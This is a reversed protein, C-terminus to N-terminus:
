IHILSLHQPIQAPAADTIRYQIVTDFLSREILGVSFAVLVAHKESLVSRAVRLVGTHAAAAPIKAPIHRAALLPKAKADRGAVRIGYPHLHVLGRNVRERACRQPQQRAPIPARHMVERQAPQVVVRQLLKQDAMRLHFRELKAKVRVLRPPDKGLLESSDILFLAKRYFVKRRGLALVVVFIQM